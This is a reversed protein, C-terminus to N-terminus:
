VERRIIARFSGDQNLRRVSERDGHTTAFSAVDALAGLLTDRDAGLSRFAEGAGTRSAALALLLHEVSVYSDKLREREADADTLIKATARDLAPEAGGHVRPLRDLQDTIRSRLASPDAGIGTLLPYAIGEGDALLGLVLHEPMVASHSHATAERRAANLAEAARRTFSNPDM